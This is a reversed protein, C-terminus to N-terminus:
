ARRNRRRRHPRRVRSNWGLSRLACRAAATASQAGACAAGLLCNHPGGARHCMARPRPNRLPRVPLILALVFPLVAEQPNM